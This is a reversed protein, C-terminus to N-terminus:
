RGALKYYKQRNIIVGETKGDKTLQRFYENCRTRSLGIVNSLQSSTLKRHQQLAVLIEEKIKNKRATDDENGVAPSQNELMNELSEIRKLLIDIKTNDVGPAPSEAEARDAGATQEPPMIRLTQHQGVPANETIVSTCFIPKIRQLYFLQEERIKAKM